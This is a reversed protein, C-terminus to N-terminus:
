ELFSKRFLVPGLTAGGGGRNQQWLAINYSEFITDFTINQVEGVRWAQRPGGGPNGFAGNPNQRVELKDDRKTRGEEGSLWNWYGLM